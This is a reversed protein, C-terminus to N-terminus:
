DIGSETEFLFLFLVRTALKLTARDLCNIVDLCNGGNKRPLAM